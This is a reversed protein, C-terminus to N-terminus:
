LDVITLDHRSIGGDEIKGAYNVAYEKGVMRSNFDDVNGRPVVSICDEDSHLIEGTDMDTATYVVYKFTGYNGFAEGVEIIKMIFMGLPYGAFKRSKREEVKKAQLKDQIAKELRKRAEDRSEGTNGASVATPKAM